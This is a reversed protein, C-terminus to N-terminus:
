DPTPVNVCVVCVAVCVPLCVSFFLGEPTWLCFQFYSLLRRGNLLLSRSNDVSYLPVGDGKDVSILPEGDGKLPDLFDGLSGWRHGTPADAQTM